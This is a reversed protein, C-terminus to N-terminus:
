LQTVTNEHKEERKICIVTEKKFLIGKVGNGTDVTIKKVKFNQLPELASILIKGIGGEDGDEPFLKVIKKEAYKVQKYRVAEFCDCQMTVKENIEEETLSQKVEITKIQGCFRCVGNLMVPEM